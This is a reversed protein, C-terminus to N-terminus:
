EGRMRGVLSMFQSREEPTLRELAEILPALKAKRYKTHVQKGKKSISIDVRRKDDPNIAGSVFGAQEIRRIIRSMQAPLVGIAETIKGVTSTGSQVLHDLALYESETLDSTEKATQRWSLKSMAHIAEALQATTEPM